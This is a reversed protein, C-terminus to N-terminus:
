CCFLIDLGGQSLFYTNLKQEYWSTQSYNRTNTCSTVINPSSMYGQLERAKRKDHCGCMRLSPASSPAHCPMIGHTGRKLFILTLFDERCAGHCAEEKTKHGVALDCPQHGESYLLSAFCINQKQLRDLSFCTFFPTHTAKTNGFM